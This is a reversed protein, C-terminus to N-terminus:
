APDAPTNVALVGHLYLRIAVRLHHRRTDSLGPPELGQMARFFPPSVTCHLFHHALVQMERPSRSDSLSSALLDAVQSGARSVPSDFVKRALEPFRQSEAVAVRYIGLVDAQLTWSLLDCALHYLREELTDGPLQALTHNQLNRTTYGTVVADFVEAKDAFRAYFTKKSIGASRVITDVTTAAYGNAVFSDTAVAVIRDTLLAAEDVSPRGAKRAGKPRIPPTHTVPANLNTYPYADVQRCTLM